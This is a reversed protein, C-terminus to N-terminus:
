PSNYEQFWLGSDTHSVFRCAKTINDAGTITVNPNQDLYEILERLSQPTSM